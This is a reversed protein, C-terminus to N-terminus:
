PHFETLALPIPGAVQWLPEMSAIIDEYKQVVAMEVNWLAGNRYLWLRVLQLRGFDIGGPGRFVENPELLQDEVAYKEFFKYFIRAIQKALASTSLLASTADHFTLPHQFTLASGNTSHSAPWRIRIQTKSCMLWLLYHGTQDELTPTPETVESDTTLWALEM